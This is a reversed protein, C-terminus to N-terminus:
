GRWSGIRGKTRSQVFRALAGRVRGADTGHRVTPSFFTNRCWCLKVRACKSPARQALVTGRWKWGCRCHLVLHGSVAVIAVTVFAAAEGLIMIKPV